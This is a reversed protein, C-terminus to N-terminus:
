KCMKNVREYEPLSDVAQQRTRREADMMDTYQKVISSIRRQLWAETAKGEAVPLPGFIMNRDVEAKVAKGILAVYKNVIERDVQVHKHEHGMIAEHKCSGRPFESAIYITPHIHVLVDVKDYWYCVQGLGKHTLTSFQMAQRTEIGGKMLGGVDTIVNNGYPNVTDVNFKNLDKESKSFDYSVQDTNAKITVRAPKDPKCWSAEAAHVASGGSFGGAAM